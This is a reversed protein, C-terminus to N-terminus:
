ATVSEGTLHGIGARVIQDVVEVEDMSRPAYVFTWGEDCIGLSALPFRQGWGAEVVKRTDTTTLWVHLSNDAPHVHAIEDGLIPDQTAKKRGHLESRAYIADTSRGETISKDLILLNPYKQAYVSPLAHLRKSVADDLPAPSQRQPMTRALMRPVPGQRRPLLKSLYSPGTTPLKSADTMHDASLARLVRFKTMKMYGRIHSPTGGTGFAIWANYDYISWAVTFALAASAATVILTLPSGVVSQGFDM